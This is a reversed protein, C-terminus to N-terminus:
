SSLYGLEIMEKNFQKEIRKVLSESLEKKWVDTKGERFFLKGEGKESFGYKKELKQLKEFKSNEIAKRLKEESSKIGDIEQLYNIIKTFTNLEDLLMDEYKVILIKCLRYNKWSNYHDSWTGM